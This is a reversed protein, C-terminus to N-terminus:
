ENDRGPEGRKATEGRVANHRLRGCWGGRLAARSSVGSGNGGPNGKGDIVRLMSSQRWGIVFDHWPGAALTQLM